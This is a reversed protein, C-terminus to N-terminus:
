KREGLLNVIGYLILALFHSTFGLIYAIVNNVNNNYIIVGLICVLTVKVFVSLIMITGHKISVKSLYNRTAISSIIFGFSAIILGLLFLYAYENFILQILPVITTGILIDFFFVKKLM